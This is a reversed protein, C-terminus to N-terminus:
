IISSVLRHVRVRQFEAKAIVGPHGEAGRENAALHADGRGPVGEADEAGAERVAAVPQADTWAERQPLPQSSGDRWADRWCPGGGLVVVVVAGVRQQRRLVVVQVVLEELAVVAHCGQEVAEEAGRGLRDEFPAALRGERLQLFLANLCKQFFLADLRNNSPTGLEASRATIRPL